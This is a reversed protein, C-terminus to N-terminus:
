AVDDWKKFEGAGPLRQKVGQRWSNSKEMNWMCTLHRLEQRQTDPESYVRHRWLEDVNDCIVPDGEERFSFLLENNFVSCWFSELWENTSLHMSQSGIKPTTFFLVAAVTPTWITGRAKIDNGRSAYRSPPWQIVYCNRNWDKSCGGYQRRSHKYWDVKKDCLSGERWMRVLVKKKKTTKTIAIGVHIIHYRVTTETQVKRNIMLTSCWGM